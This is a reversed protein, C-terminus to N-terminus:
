GARRAYFVGDVLTGAEGERAAAWRSRGVLEHLFWCLVVSRFGAGWM